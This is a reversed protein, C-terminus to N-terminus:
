CVWVTLPGITDFGAGRAADIGSGADWAVQALGPALAAVAKSAEAWLREEDGDVSFLNTLGVVDRTVNAIGGAVFETDDASEDVAALVHIGPTDLLAPRLISAHEPGEAWHSVWRELEATSRVARWVRADGALVPDVVVPDHWLWQGHIVPAFGPPSLDLRAWSDKVAAGPGLAIATLVDDVTADPSLTVADPYLPPTRAASSWAMPGFQGTLGHTRAVTDCWLANNRAALEVADIM